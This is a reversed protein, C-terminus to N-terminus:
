PRAPRQFRIMPPSSYLFASDPGAADPVRGGIRLIAVPRGLSDAVVLPDAGSPAEFWIQEVPNDQHPFARSPDELYIVRTVFSGESALQLETQTLVIPIPFRLAEGPPPYTRDIIEITPYVEVGPMGDIHTVRLRYVQGIHLGVLLPSPAPQQFSGAEATSILAGGPARVEVPQYYGPLPGGRQLQLRGIAGPPM